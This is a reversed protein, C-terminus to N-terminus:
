IVIFKNERLCVLSNLYFFMGNRLSHNFAADFIQTCCLTQTKNPQQNAQLRSEMM